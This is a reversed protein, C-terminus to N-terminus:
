AAPRDGAWSGIRGEATHLGGGRDLRYLRDYTAEPTTDQADYGRRNGRGERRVEVAVVLDLEVGELYESLQAREVLLRRGSVTIEGSYRDDDDREGWSQYVFMPPRGPASWLTESASSRALGCAGVVREGPRMDVLEAQGRLPDQEDIGGESSMRSLWGVLHFPAEHHEFDDENEAPLKYDWASDLSQLAGLLSMAGAPDVLASAFYVTEARDSYCLRWDGKV